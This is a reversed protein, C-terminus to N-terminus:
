DDAAVKARFEADFRAEAEELLRRAEMAEDWERELKARWGKPPPWSVGWGALTKRTWGGRPSLGALIEKRSVLKRTKQTM